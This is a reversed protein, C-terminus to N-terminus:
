RSAMAQKGLERLIGIPTQELSQGLPNQKLLELYFGQDLEPSSAGLIRGGIDNCDIVLVPTGLLRAIRRAWDDPMDPAPVVCHDYPPITFKCPGDVAAAKYGAVRYFWGKRRFLRGVAGAAAALLIRCIGCERLACEMTEPMALGIGYGTKQVFRCLFRALWGAHIDELPMAKGQACALMKESVLLTDTEPQLHPAAYRLFYRDLDTEATVLETPIAYCAYAKGRCSIFESKEPNVIPQTVLHDM